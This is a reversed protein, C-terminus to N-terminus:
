DFGYVDYFVDRLRAPSFEGQRQMSHHQTSLGLGPPVTQHLLVRHRANFVVPPAGASSRGATTYGDAHLCASLPAM